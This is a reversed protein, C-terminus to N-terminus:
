GSAVGLDCTRRRSEITDISRARDAMLHHMAPINGVVESAAAQESSTRRKV